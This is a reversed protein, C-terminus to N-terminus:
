LAFAVALYPGYFLDDTDDANVAGLVGNDNLYLARAGLSVGAVDNGLSFGARADLQTYPWVNAYVRAELGLPGVLGLAGSVGAGPAFFTVAPAFAAHLGLEARLRGREGALLAYTVHGQMLHITDYADSQPVPAFAATYNFVFGFRRGEVALLAGLLAGGAGVMVDGGLSQVTLPQTEEYPGVPPPTDVYLQVPPPPPIYGIGYGWVNYGPGWVWARNSGWREPVGIRADRESRSRTGSRGVRADSESRSRTGGGSSRPASFSSRGGGGHSGGGSSSRGGSSRGFGAFASDPFALTTLLALVIAWSSRARM